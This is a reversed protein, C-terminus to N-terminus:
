DGVDLGPDELLAGADDGGRVDIRAGLELDEVRLELDAVEGLARAQLHHERDAATAAVDGGVTVLAGLGRDPHNGDVRDERGYAADGHVDVRRADALA